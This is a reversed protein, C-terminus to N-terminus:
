LEEKQAAITPTSCLSANISSRESSGLLASADVFASIVTARQAPTSTDVAKPTIIMDKYCFWLEDLM